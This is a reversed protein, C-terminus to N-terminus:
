KKKIKEEELEKQSELKIKEMMIKNKKLKKKM